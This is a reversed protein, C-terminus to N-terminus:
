QLGGLQELVFRGIHQEDRARLGLVPRAAIKTKGGRGTTGGFHQIAAYVASSGVEVGMGRLQYVYSDYLRHTDILTKDGRKIATASQPMASGDALRQDDLNGQVQGLFYEGIERRASAFLGADRMALRGLHGRLVDDDFGFELAVGSM